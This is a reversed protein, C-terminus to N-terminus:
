ISAFFEILKMEIKTPLLLSPLVLIPCMFEIAICKHVLRLPNQILCHIEHVAKRLFIM